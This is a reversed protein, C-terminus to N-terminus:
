ITIPSGYSTALISGAQGVGLLTEGKELRREVSGSRVPVPEQHINLKCVGAVAQDQIAQM